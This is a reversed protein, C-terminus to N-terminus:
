FAKHLHQARQKSLPRVRCASEEDLLDAEDFGAMVM